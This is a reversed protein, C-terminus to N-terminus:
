RKTQRRALLQLTDGLGTLALLGNAVRKVVQGRRGALQARLQRRAPADTRAEGGRWRARIASVDVNQARLSVLELGTGSVRMGTGSVREALTAPEFYALHEPHIAQWRDGVIRHTLAAWNPTTMYLLGGPVLLEAARAIWRSPRPVHEIVEVLTVVDFSAPLLTESFIDIAECPLGFRRCIAIAHPSLDIGRANWGLSRAVSVLQGEGCGVDLLARGPAAFLRETLLARLSLSTLPDYLAEMPLGVRDAYYAYLRGDFAAPAGRRQVLACAACRVIEVQGLAHAVSALATAAGLPGECDICREM